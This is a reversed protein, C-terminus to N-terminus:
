WRTLTSNVVWKNASPAAAPTPRKTKALELTRLRVREDLTKRDELVRIRSQPQEQEKPGWPYDRMEVVWMRGDEDFRIYLAGEVRDRQWTGGIEEASAALTFAQSPTATPPIPTPTAAAGCGVLLLVALLSWILRQFFKEGNM